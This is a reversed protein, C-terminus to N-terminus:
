LVTTANDHVQFEVGEARFKIRAASYKDYVEDIEVEGLYTEDRYIQFTWGKAIEDDKGVSLVVYGLDNDVEVVTADIKKMAILSSIDFGKSQAIKLLSDLHNKEKEIEALALELATVRDQNRKLDGEKRLLDAEAQRQKEQADLASNRQQTNDDALEKNRSNLDNITERFDALTNKIQDVSDRLQQNSVEQSEVRDTLNNNAVELDEIRSQKDGVETTLTSIRAILDSNEQQWTEKDQQYATDLENYRGRWDDAKSLYSAAAGVIVL